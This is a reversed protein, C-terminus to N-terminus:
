HKYIRKKGVVFMTEDSLDNLTYQKQMYLNAHKKTSMVHTLRVILFDYFFYFLHVFYNKLDEDNYSTSMRTESHRFFLFNNKIVLQIQHYNIQVFDIVFINKKDM